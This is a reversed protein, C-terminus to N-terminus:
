KILTMSGNPRVTIKGQPKVTIIEPESSIVTLNGAVNLIGAITFRSTGSIQGGWMIDMRNCQFLGETSSISLTRSIEPYHICGPPILVNLDIGPLVNHQWNLTNQWEPSTIGTWIGLGLPMLDGKRATGDGFGGRAFVPSDPLGLYLSCSHGDGNGGLSFSAPYVGGHYSSRCAGDAVGSLTHLPFGFSYGNFVGASNGDMIGGNCYEDQSNLSPFVNERDTGDGGGGHCYFQDNNVGTFRHGTEAGDGLGGYCYFQDNNVGTFRHGSESGDGMGGTCYLVQDGNVPCASSTADFGGDGGGLCYTHQGNVTMLLPTSRTFGDGKGGSFQGLTRLGALLIFLITLSYRM